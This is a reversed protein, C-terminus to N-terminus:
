CCSTMKFAKAAVESMGDAHSPKWGRSQIISRLIVVYCFYFSLLMAVIPFDAHNVSGNSDSRSVIQRFSDASTVTIIENFPRTDSKCAELGLM